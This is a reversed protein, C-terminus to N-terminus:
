QKQKLQAMRELAIIDIKQKVDDYQKIIAAFEEQYLGYLRGAVKCRIDAARPVHGLLALEGFFSGEELTAVVVKDVIVDYKGSVIFFMENGLEGKRCVYEKKKCLRIHLTNAIQSQFLDDRGDGTERQLFPVRKIIGKLAILNFAQQDKASRGGKMFKAAAGNKMLEDLDALEDDHVTGYARDQLIAKVRGKEGIKLHGHFLDKTLLDEGYMVKTSGLEEIAKSTTVDCVDDEQEGAKMGLALMESADMAFRIPNRLARRARRYAHHHLGMQAMFWWLIEFLKVMCCVISSVTSLWVGLEPIELLGAGAYGYYDCDVTEGTGYQMMAFHASAGIATAVGQFTYATHYYGDPLTGESFLNCFTAGQSPYYAANSLMLLVTEQVLPLAQYKDPYSQFATHADTTYRKISTPQEAYFGGDPSRVSQVQGNTVMQWQDAVFNFAVEGHSMTLLSSCIQVMTTNVLVDGRDDWVSGPPMTLAIELFMSRDDSEILTANVLTALGYDLTPAPTGNDCVVQIVYVPGSSQIQFTESPDSLPWGAWGGLLGDALPLGYNYVEAFDVDGQIYNQPDIGKPLVANTYMPPQCLDTKIKTQVPKWTFSISSSIVIVDAILEILSSAFTVSHAPAHSGHIWFDGLELMTIHGRVLNGAAISTTVICSITHSANHAILTMGIVFIQLFNYVWIGPMVTTITIIFVVILTIHAMLVVILCVLLKVRDSAIIGIFSIFVSSEMLKAQREFLWQIVPHYKAPPEIEEEKFYASHDTQSRRLSVYSSAASYRTPEPEPVSRTLKQPGDHLPMTVTHSHNTNINHYQKSVNPQTGTADGLKVAQINQNSIEKISTEKPILSSRRISTIPLSLPNQQNESINSENSTYKQTQFDAYPDFNPSNELEISPQKSHLSMKRKQAFTLQTQSTDVDLSPRHAQLTPSLSTNRSNEAVISNSATFDISVKKKPVPPINLDDSRYTNEAPPLQPFSSESKKESVGSSFNVLAPSAPKTVKMSPSRSRLKRQAAFSLQNDSDSDVLAQGLSMKRRQVFSLNSDAGIDVTRAPEESTAASLVKRRPNPSANPSGQKYPDQQLFAMQSSTAMDDKFKVEKNESM